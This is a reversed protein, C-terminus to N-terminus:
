QISFDYVKHTIGQTSATSAAFMFCYEGLVLPNDTSVEYLGKQVKKYHFPVKLKDDIGINGGVSNEKAVVMERDRKGQTLKVLFFENPSEVNSKAQNNDNFGTKDKDFVFVFLPSTMAIKMNAEKGSLTAKLKANFLGSVSREMAEGLGGAKSNTLIAADMEIYEHTTPNFYYLGPELALEPNTAANQTATSGKAIMITIIDDPVGEKKLAILGETSLDFSCASNVIKTSIIDKSIGAKHLQIITTNTVVTSQQAVGRLSYSLFTVFLLM